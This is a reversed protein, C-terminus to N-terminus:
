EAGRELADLKNKLVRIRDTIENRKEIERFREGMTLQSSYLNQSIQDIESYYYSIQTKIEEIKEKRLKEKTSEIRDFNRGADSLADKAIQAATELDNKVEIKLANLEDFVAEARVKAQKAIEASQKASVREQNAFYLQLGAILLLGISVLVGINQFHRVIWRQNRQCHMCVSAEAPIIGFCLQCQKEKSEMEPNESTM